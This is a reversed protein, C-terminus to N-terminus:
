ANIFQALEGKDGAKIFKKIYGKRKIEFNDNKLYEYMLEAAKVNAEKGEFLDHELGAKVLIAMYVILLAPEKDALKTGWVWIQFSYPAGTAWKIIFLSANKNAESVENPEHEFLYNACKLVLDETDRYDQENELEVDNCEDFNQAFSFSTSLILGFILLLRM